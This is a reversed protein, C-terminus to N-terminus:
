QEGRRSRHSRTLRGPGAGPGRGASAARRPGRDLGCRPKSPSRDRGGTRRPGGPPSAAPIATQAAPTAEEAPAPGLSSPGTNASAARPQRAPPGVPM